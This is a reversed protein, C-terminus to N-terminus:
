PRPRSKRTTPKWRCCARKTKRTASQDRTTTVLFTVPGHKVITVTVIDNGVKQPVPYRLSEESM